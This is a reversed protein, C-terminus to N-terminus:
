DKTIDNGRHHREEWGWGPEELIRFQSHLRQVRRSHNENHQVGDPTSRNRTTTSNEYLLISLLILFLVWMGLLM